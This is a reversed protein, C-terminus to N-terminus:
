NTSAGLLPTILPDLKVNYDIESVIWEGRDRKFMLFRMFLPGDQLHVGMYNVRINPTLDITHIPAYSRPKGYAREVAGLDNELSAVYNKDKGLPSDQMWRRVASKHGGSRWVDLGSTMNNGFAARGPAQAEADRPVLTLGLIVISSILLASAFFRKM